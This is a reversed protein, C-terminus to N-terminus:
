SRKIDQLKKYQGPERVTAPNACYKINNIRKAREGSSKSGNPKGDYISDYDDRHAKLYDLHQIKKDIKEIKNYFVKKQAPTTSTEKLNILTRKQEKLKEIEKDINEYKNYIHRALATSEDYEDCIDDIYSEIYRGYCIDNIENATKETIMNDSLKENLKEVILEYQEYTM